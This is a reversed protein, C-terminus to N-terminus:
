APRGEPFFQYGSEPKGRWVIIYRPNASDVEIKKRLASVLQQLSNNTVGGYNAGDESWVENILVTYTHRDYPHKILFRLLKDEQPSIKDLRTLGQYLNKTKGELRIGGRGSPGVRKIYTALLQGHILWSQGEKDCLGKDMLRMLPQAHEKELREFEKETGKGKKVLAQWECVGALAFQEESSLAKWLRAIRYEFHHAQQLYAEWEEIPQDTKQWWHGIAKLLVPFRGTLRLMHAIEHEIPATSATRTAQNIVHRADKEGMAGVWCVNSDLLEYMDGLVERKSLYMVTKTMGVVFCLTEKFSDRLGRLTNLLRADAEDCFQDFHNLVLVVQTQQAQFTFLMEHLASQSLFPDLTARNELYLRAIREKVNANFRERVWYFARLLVRYLTASNNAPLHNLDVPILAIPDAAKPLYSKSLIDPRHCLFELLNSRGCGPLGVVSGSEGALLWDAIVQMEKARYYEPFQSLRRPTMM